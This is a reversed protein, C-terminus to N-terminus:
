AAQPPKATDLQHLRRYLACRQVLEDHRGVDVIQGHQMVVVRQAVALLSLRHTIMIATRGVIFRQLVDQILTESHMDIQSTPEDLILIEPNRLIARALAIRQRQGGSLRCGAQGVVTEYGQSLQKVIFEHAHAQQAAAEIEAQTAAPSGYRINNAVTDDFLHTQQTVLGIRGRLDGLAIERLDIGDLLVRGQSPDFFRPILNVLTSKGCGNPGVIAIAEGHPITLQVGQLVPRTRHYQFHINELKLERHPRAVPRPASPEAVRPIADLVPFV